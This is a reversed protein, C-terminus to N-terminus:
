LFDVAETEVKLDRKPCKNHNYRKTQTTNEQAFKKYTKIRGRNLNILQIFFTCNAINVTYNINKCKQLMYLLPHRLFFTTKRFQKYSMLWLVLNFVNHTM